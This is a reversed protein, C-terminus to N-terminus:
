LELQDCGWFQITSSLFLKHAHKIIVTRNHESKGNLCVFNCHENIIRWFKCKNSFGFKM